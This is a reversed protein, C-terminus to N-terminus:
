KRRSFAKRASGIVIGLILICGGGAALVTGM